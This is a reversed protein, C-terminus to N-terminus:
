KIIGAAKMEALSAVGDKDTDLRDFNSLKVTRYEVITVSRDRNQDFQALLAVGNPLPTQMPLKSFEEASLQGNKDFDLQTFLARNRAQVQILAASREFQEIEAQTVKGNQDSDMRKFEADMTALFTTRPIPVPTPTSQALTKHSLIIGFLILVPMSRYNM